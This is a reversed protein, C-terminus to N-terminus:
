SAIQPKDFAVGFGIGDANVMTEHTLVGEEVGGHCYVRFVKAMRYPDEFAEVKDVKKNCIACTPWGSSAFYHQLENM